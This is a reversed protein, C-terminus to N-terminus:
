GLYEEMLMSIEMRVGVLYHGHNRSEPRSPCDVQCAVLHVKGVSGMQHCLRNKQLPRLLPIRAM